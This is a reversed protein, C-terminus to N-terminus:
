RDSRGRLEVCHAFSYFFHQTVYVHRKTLFIAAEDEEAFLQPVDFLLTAGNRQPGHIHLADEVIRQAFGEVRQRADTEM